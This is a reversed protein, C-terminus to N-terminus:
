PRSLCPDLAAKLRDAKAQVLELNADIFTGGPKGDGQRWLFQGPGEMLPTLVAALRAVARSDRRAAAVELVFTGGGQRSGSAAFLANAKHRVGSARLHTLPSAIGDPGEFRDFPFVPRTQDHRPIELAVALVGTVNPGNNSTCSFRFRVAHSAVGIRALGEFVVGAQSPPQAQAGVPALTMGMALCAAPLRLRM